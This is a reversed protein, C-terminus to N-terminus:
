ALPHGRQSGPCLLRVLKKQLQEILAPRVPAFRSLGGFSSPGMSPIHEPMDASPQISGSPVRFPNSDHLYLVSELLADAGRREGKAAVVDGVQSPRQFQQGM